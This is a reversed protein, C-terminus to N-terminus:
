LNQIEGATVLIVDPGASHAFGGEDKLTDSTVERVAKSKPERGQSATRTKVVVVLVGCSVALAVVVGVAVGILHIGKIYGTGWGAVASTAASLREEAIDIPTFYVFDIPPSQGQSNESVVKLHFGCGAPLGSVSFTPVEQDKLVAM